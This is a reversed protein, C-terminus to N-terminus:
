KEKDLEAFHGKLDLTAWRLSQCNAGNRLVKCWNEVSRNQASLKPNKCYLSKGDSSLAGGHICSPVKVIVGQAVRSKLTKIQAEYETIGKKIEETRGCAACRKAQLEETKGLIKISPPAGEKFWVCSYVGVGKEDEGYALAPCADDLSAFANVRETYRQLKDIWKPDYIDFEVGKDIFSTLIIGMKLKKSQAYKLLKAHENEGIKVNKRPIKHPGGKRESM